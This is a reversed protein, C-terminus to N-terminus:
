RNGALARRRLLRRLESDRPAAPRRRDSPHPGVAQRDTTAERRWRRDTRASPSRGYGKPTRRPARGPGSSHRGGDVGQGRQRRRRDVLKTGDASFALSDVFGQHGPLPMPTSPDEVNWLFASSDRSGTALWRGDHASPSHTVRLGHGELPTPAVDPRTLDWLRVLGKDDGAALWRGTTASPWHPSPPRWRRRARRAGSRCDRGAVAPGQRGPRGNGAGFRGAHHRQRGCPRRGRTREPAQGGASGADRPATGGRRGPPACRGEDDRAGGRHRVPHESVPVCSRGRGVLGGAPPRDATRRQEDAKNKQRNAWGALLVAVVALVALASM